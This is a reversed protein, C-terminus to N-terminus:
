FCWRNWLEPVNKFKPPFLFKNTPKRRRYIKPGLRCRAVSALPWLLALFVVSNQIRERAFYFLLFYLRQYPKLLLLYKACCMERQILYSVALDSYQSVAAEPFLNGGPTCYSLNGLFVGEFLFLFFLCHAPHLSLCLPYCRRRSQWSWTEAWPRLILRSYTLM